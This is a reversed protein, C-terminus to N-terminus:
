DDFHDQLNRGGYFIRDIFVTTETVHFAIPARHEFGIV